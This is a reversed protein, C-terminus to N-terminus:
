GREYGRRKTVDAPLFRMAFDSKAVCCRGYINDTFHMQTRTNLLVALDDGNVDGFLVHAWSFLLAAAMIDDYRFSTKDSSTFSKSLKRYQIMTM